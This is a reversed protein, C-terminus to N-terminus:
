SPAAPATHCSDSGSDTFGGASEPVFRWDYGQARLTLKLIGFTTANRVESNPQAAGIAYHSRGGTGVVFERIGSVPDAAGGPTQPAFREYDHDHGNLVLDAGAAYLADWLPTVSSTNGHEGSSFRPHHWYALTCAAPHAALDSRLWTEQPSGAGCGGAQSCNSNLAILHWTGLDYSYYGKTRDGAPGTAVDVGNWYDFYGKGATTSAPDCGSAPATLYEHNGIAPHTRSRFVGWTPDYFSLFSSLDGCEYQIDGLTLVDTITPDTAIASATLGYHCTTGSTTAASRCAIDGAAAVVPDSGGPPPPAASAVAATAASTATSAGASNTGTVAVRLASDVDAAAIAYSATTAGAIAVCGTGSADCRLWQYGFTIPQTGSWVGPDATVEQGEQALGGITPPSTNAPAAPQSEIVLQPATAAGAERSRLGVATASANTVAISVAGNGAVLPTVDMAVWGVGFAGTSDTATAAVPPANAWKITQETWATDAVGRATLGGRSRSTAYVRLTARTVQGALGAVTFRLYARQVPSGDIRLATSTGYNTSPRSAAVYADSTATVTQTPNAASTPPPESGFM